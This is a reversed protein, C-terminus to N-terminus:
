ICVVPLAVHDVICFTDTLICRYIQIIVIVGADGIMIRYISIRQYGHIHPTTLTATWPVAPLAPMNRMGRLIDPFINRKSLDNVLLHALEYRKNELM